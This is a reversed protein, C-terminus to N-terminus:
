EVGGLGCETIVLMITKYNQYYDCLCGCCVCESVCVCVCVCLVPVCVCGAIVLMIQGAFENFFNGIDFALPNLGAYEFDIFSM